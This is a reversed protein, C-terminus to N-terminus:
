FGPPTGLSITRIENSNGGVINKKEVRLIIMTKYSDLFNKSEMFYIEQITIM